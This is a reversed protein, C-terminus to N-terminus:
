QPTLFYDEGNSYALRWGYANGRAIIVRPMGSSVKGNQETMESNAHLYGSDM